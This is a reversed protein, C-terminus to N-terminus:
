FRVDIFTARVQELNLIIPTGERNKPVDEWSQLPDSREERNYTQREAKLIADGEAKDGGVTMALATDTLDNINDLREDELYMEYAQPENDHFFNGARLGPHDRFGVDELGKRTHIDRTRFEPIRDAQVVYKSMVANSPRVIADKPEDFKQLDKANESTGPAVGLLAADPRPAEPLTYFDPSNGAPVVGEYGSPAVAVAAEQGSAALTGLLLAAITGISRAFMKM